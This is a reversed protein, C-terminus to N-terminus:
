LRELRNEIERRLNFVIESLWGHPEQFDFERIEELLYNVADEAREALIILDELGEAEKRKEELEKSKM